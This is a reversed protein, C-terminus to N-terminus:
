QLATTVNTGTTTRHNPSRDYFQGGSLYGNIWLQQGPIYDPADVFQVFLEINESNAVQSPTFEVFAGTLFNIVIGTSNISTHNTANGSM